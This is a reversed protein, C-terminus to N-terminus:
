DAPAPSRLEETSITLRAPFAPQSLARLAARLRAPASALRPDIRISPLGIGMLEERLDSPEPLREIDAVPVLRVVLGLRSRRRYRAKLIGIGRVEILGALPAPASAVIGGGDRLLLVQDDAVLTARALDAGLGHGPADILRLALDSKGSGPPGLILIGTAEIDLCTGHVLTADVDPM